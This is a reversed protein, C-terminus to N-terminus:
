YYKPLVRSDYATSNQNVKEAPSLWEAASSSCPVTNAHPVKRPSEPTNPKAGPMRMARRGVAMKFGVLASSCTTLTTDPAILM